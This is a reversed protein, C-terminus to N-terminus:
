KRTVTLGVKHQRDHSTSGEPTEVDTCVFCLTQFRFLIFHLRLCNSIMLAKLFTHTHKRGRGPINSQNSQIM